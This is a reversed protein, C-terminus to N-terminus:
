SPGCRAAGTTADECLWVRHNATDLWLSGVTVGLTAADDDVTPPGSADDVWKVRDPVPDGPHVALLYRAM